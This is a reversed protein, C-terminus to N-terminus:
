PVLVIREASNVINKSAYSIICGGRVITSELIARNIKEYVIIADYDMLVTMMELMDIDIFFGEYFNNSPDEFDLKVDVNGYFCTDREFRVQGSEIEYFCDYGFVGLGTM